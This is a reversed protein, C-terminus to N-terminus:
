AKGHLPNAQAFDEPARASSAREVSIGKKKLYPGQAKIERLAAWDKLQKVLTYKTGKAALFSRIIGEIGEQVLSTLSIGFIVCASRVVGVLASSPPVDTPYWGQAAQAVTFAQTLPAALATKYPSLPAPFQSLVTTVFASVPALPGEEPIAFALAHDAISAGIVGAMVASLGLTALLLPDRTEVYQKIMRGTAAGKEKFYPVLTFGMVGTAILTNLFAKQEVAQFGQPDSLPNPTGLGNEECRRNFAVWGRHTYIMLYMSFIQSSYTPIKEAMHWAISLNENREGELIRELSSPPMFNKALAEGGKEILLIGILYGVFNRFPYSALCVETKHASSLSLIAPIWLVSVGTGIVTLATTATRKAFPLDANVANTLLNSPLLRNNGVTSLIGWTTVGATVLSYISGGSIDAYLGVWDGIAYSIVGGIAIHSVAYLAQKFTTAGSTAEPDSGMSDPKEGHNQVVGRAEVTPGWITEKVFTAAGRFGRSFWGGAEGEASISPQSILLFGLFSFCLLQKM